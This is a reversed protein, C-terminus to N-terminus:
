PKIEGAITLVSYYTALVQETMLFSFYNHHLHWRGGVILATSGLKSATMVFTSINTNQADSM